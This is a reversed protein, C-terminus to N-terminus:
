IQVQQIWKKLPVSVAKCPQPWLGTRDAKRFKQTFVDLNETFGQHPGRAHQQKRTGNIIVRAIVKADTEAALAQRLGHPSQLIEQM